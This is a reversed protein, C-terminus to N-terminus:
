EPKLHKKESKQRVFRKVNSFFKSRCVACGSQRM